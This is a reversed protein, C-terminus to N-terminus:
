TQPKKSKHDQTYLLPQCFNAFPIEHISTHPLFFLPTTHIQSLPTIFKKLIIKFNCIGQQCLKILQLQVPICVIFINPLYPFLEIINPPMLLQIPLVPCFGLPEFFSICINGKEVITRNLFPPSIPNGQYFFGFHHSPTYRNKPEYYWQPM